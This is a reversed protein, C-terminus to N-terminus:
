ARQMENVARLRPEAARRRARVALVIARVLERIPGRPGREAADPYPAYRGTAAAALQAAAAAGALAIVVPTGKVFGVVVLELLYWPADFGLGFRWALSGVVLGPGLLGAAFIALRATPSARRAQPLWLWAHVAPLLFLLAFPNTAIVLLAVVALALLAVTQGAVKEEVAVARRPVLRQREILWGALIVVAMGALALMPWDGAEASAPNPPRAPGTGFAGAVRFCTFVAGAFAWFLLRSRLARLAPALRIGYRRCLAFLDVAAVVFPVLLAILV